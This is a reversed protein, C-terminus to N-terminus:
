YTVTIKSPNTTIGEFMLKGDSTLTEDYVGPELVRGGTMEVDNYSVEIKVKEGKFFLRDTFWVEGTKVTGSESSLKGANDTSAEIAAEARQAFFIQDFLGASKGKSNQYGTFLCLIFLIITLNAVAGNKPTPIEGTAKDYSKIVLVSFALAALSKIIYSFDFFHVLWCAFFFSAFAALFGIAVHKVGEFSRRTSDAPFNIGDCKITEKSDCTESGTIIVDSTNKNKPIYKKAM